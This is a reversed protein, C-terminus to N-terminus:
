PYPLFPGSEPEPVTIEGSATVCSNDATRVSQGLSAVVIRSGQTRNVTRRNTTAAATAAVM